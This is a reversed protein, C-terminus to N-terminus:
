LYSPAPPLGFYEELTPIRRHVMDTALESGVYRLHWSEAYYGTIRDHGLLYRVIFGYRHGNAAAWVAAPSAAFCPQLECAGGDGIDLALGTQHESFGPRASATDAGAVSGHIRLWSNYTSAQTAYSRFGSLLTMAVGARAADAFMSAAAAATVKRLLTDATAGALAPVMLDSPQYTVPSLRHHKNVLVWPSSPDTLPFQRKLQRAPSDVAPALTGSATASPAATATASTASTSPSPSPAAPSASAPSGSSSASAPPSAQPSPSCAGLGAM